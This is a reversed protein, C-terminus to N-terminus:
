CRVQETRGKLNELAASAEKGNPFRNRFETFYLEKENNPLLLPNNEIELNPLIKRLFVNEKLFQLDEWMNELYNINGWVFPPLPTEFIPPLARVPKLANRAECQECKLDSPVDPTRVIYHLRCPRVNVHMGHAAPSM